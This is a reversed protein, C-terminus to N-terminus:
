IWTKLPFILPYIFTFFTKKTFNSSYSMSNILWAALSNVIQITNSRSIESKKKGDGNLHPSAVFGEFNELKQVKRYLDTVANSASRHINAIDQNM